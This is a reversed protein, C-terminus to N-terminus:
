DHVHHVGYAHLHYILYEYLYMDNRSVYHFAISHDSCCKPGVVVEWKNYQHLWNNKDISGPILHYAPAFPHFTERGQEDRTDGPHVGMSDLCSGVEVDEAFSKLKCQSPDKMAIIFLALTKKSFVYGAGGSNYGKFQVFYRGFYHPDSSNYNSLFLRLNELIIFSDDDAKIFWDADNRHNDYVYKWAARTKLWLNERGEPVDLGVAPFDKDEKSSMFLLINCRKGWTDKVAQGKTYLNGPHTMVWCLVRNRRALSKAVEDGARHHLHDLDNWLIPGQPVNEKPLPASLMEHGPSFGHDGEVLLSKGDAGSFDKLTNGMQMSYRPLVSSKFENHIVTFLVGASLGLLFAMVYEKPM